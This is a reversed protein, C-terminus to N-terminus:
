LEKIFKSNDLIFNGYGVIRFLKNEMDSCILILDNDQICVPKSLKFTFIDKDMNILTAQININGIQLYISDNLKPIWKGDFDETLIIKIKIEYFVPPLKGPM